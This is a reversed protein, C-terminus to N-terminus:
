RDGGVNRRRFAHPDAVAARIRGEVTQTWTSARVRAAVRIASGVATGLFEVIGHSSDNRTLLLLWTGFRDPPVRDPPYAVLSLGDYEIREGRVRPARVARDLPTRGLARNHSPRV